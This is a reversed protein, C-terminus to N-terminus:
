EMTRERYLHLVVRITPRFRVLVAWFVESWIFFFSYMLFFYYMLYGPPSKFLQVDIDWHTEWLIQIHQHLCLGRRLLPFFNLREEKLLKMMRKQLPLEHKKSTPNARHPGSTGLAKSTRRQNWFYQSLQKQVSVQPPFHIKHVSKM